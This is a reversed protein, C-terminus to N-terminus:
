GMVISVPALLLRVIKIFDHLSFCLHSFLQLLFTIRFMVLLEWENKETFHNKNVLNNDSTDYIRLVLKLPVKLHSHTLENVSLLKDRFVTQWKWVKSFLKLIFRFKVFYKFSIQQKDESWCKENLHKWYFAKIPFIELIKLGRKAARLTFPNIFIHKDFSLRCKKEIYRVAYYQIGM